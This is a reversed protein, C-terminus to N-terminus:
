RSALLSTARFRRVARSAALGAATVHVDAQQYLAHATTMHAHWGDGDPACAVAKGVRQFTRVCEIAVAIKAALELDVSPWKTLDMERKGLCDLSACREIFETRHRGQGTIDAHVAWASDTDPNLPFDQSLAALRVSATILDSQYSVGFLANAKQRVLRRQLAPGFIATFVAAVTGVAAWANWNVVCTQSLLWCQSVGDLMSM